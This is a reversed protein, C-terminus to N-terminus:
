IVPPQGVLNNSSLILYKVTDNGHNDGEGLCSVSYWSCFSGSGGNAWGDSKNWNPGGTANYLKLLIKCELM